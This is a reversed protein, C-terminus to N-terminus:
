AKELPILRFTFTVTHSFDSSVELSCDQVKAMVSCLEEGYRTKKRM